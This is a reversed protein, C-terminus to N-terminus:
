NKIKEICWCDPDEQKEIFAVAKNMSSFETVYEPFAQDHFVKYVIKKM